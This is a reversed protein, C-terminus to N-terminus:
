QYCLLPMVKLSKLCDCGDSTEHGCSDVDTVAAQVDGADEVHIVQPAKGLLKGIHGYSAIQLEGAGVDALLLDLLIDGFELEIAHNHGGARRSQM